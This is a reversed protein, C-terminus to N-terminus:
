INSVVELQGLVVMYKPVGVDVKYDRDKCSGMFRASCHCEGFGVHMISVVIGFKHFLDVLLGRQYM